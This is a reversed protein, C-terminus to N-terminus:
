RVLAGIGRGVGYTALLVFVAIALHELMAQAVASRGRGREVYYTFGAIQLLGWGVSVCLATQLDFLLAPVLFTASFVFKSFFTTITAQWVSKPSLKGLSEQSVHIGFADSLADAVAITLIGSIVATRSQTGVALGMILGLTTIIGSTAGFGLGIKSPTKM